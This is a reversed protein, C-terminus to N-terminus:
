SCALKLTMSTLRWRMWDRLSLCAKSSCGHASYQRMSSSSSTSSLRESVKIWLKLSCRTLYAWRTSWMSWRECSSKLCAWDSYRRRSAHRLHTMSWNWKHSYSKEINPMLRRMKLTAEHRYDSHFCHIRESSCSCRPRETVCPFYPALTDHTPSWTM